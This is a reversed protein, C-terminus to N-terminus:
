RRQVAKRNGVKGHRLGSADGTVGGIKMSSPAALVPSRSECTVYEDLPAVKQDTSALDQWARSYGNGTVLKVVNVAFPGPRDSPISSTHGGCAALLLVSLALPLVKVNM